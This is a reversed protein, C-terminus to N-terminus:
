QGPVLWSEKGDGESAWGTISNGNEDLSQVQWWVL